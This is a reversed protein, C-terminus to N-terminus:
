NFLKAITANVNKTNQIYKSIKFTKFEFNSNRFNKLKFNNLNLFKLYLLKGIGGNYDINTPKYKNQFM